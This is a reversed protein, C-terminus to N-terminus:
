NNIQITLSNTQVQVLTKNVLQLTSIDDQVELLIGIYNDSQYVMGTVLSLKKIVKRSGGKWTNYIDSM